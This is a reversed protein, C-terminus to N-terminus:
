RAPPRCWGPSQSRPLRWRAPRGAGTGSRRDTPLWAPSRQEPGRLVAKRPPRARKRASMGARGGYAALRRISARKGLQRSRTWGGDEARAGAAEGLVVIKMGGRHGTGSRAAADQYRVQFSEVGNRCSGGSCGRHHRSGCGRGCRGSGTLAHGGDALADGAAHAFREGGGRLVGHVGPRIGAAQQGQARLILAEGAATWIVMLSMTSNATARASTSIGASFASSM